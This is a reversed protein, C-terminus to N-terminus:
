GPPCSYSAHPKLQRNKFRLSPGGLPTVIVNELPAIMFFPESELYKKARYYNPPLPFNVKAAIVSPDCHKCPDGPMDLHFDNIELM